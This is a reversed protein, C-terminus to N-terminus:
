TRPGFPTARGRARTPPRQAHRPPTRPPRQTLEDPQLPPPVDRLPLRRPAPACPCRLAPADPTACVAHVSPQPPCIIAGSERPAQHSSRRDENVTRPSLKACGDTNSNSSSTGRHSQHCRRRSTPLCVMGKERAVTSTRPGRGASRKTFHTGQSRASAIAASTTAMALGRDPARASRTLLSPISIASVMSMELEMSASSKWGCFRM